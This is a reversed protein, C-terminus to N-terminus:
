AAVKSNRHMTAVAALEEPTIPAVKLAQDTPLKAGKIAPANGTAAPQSGDPANAAIQAPQNAPNAAVDIIKQAMQLQKWANITEQPYGLETWIGQDPAHSAILASVKDTKPLEDDIVAREAIYFDPESDLSFGEFDDYRNYGGIRILMQLARTLGADYNGRAEVIRDIADSYSARVGPATAIGKERLRHLALEPTDREIELLLENIHQSTAGIDINAVMPEPKSGAPGYVAPLQDRDTTSAVLDASKSVGAFYWLVNVHKRIADDLLSVMDNLEDIKRLTSQFPNMGFTLGINRHQVMTVPVFGYENDWEAVYNGAADQYYAFPNGNKFTSFKEPTIVETYLYMNRGPAGGPTNTDKEEVKYYELHIEKVKGVADFTAHKIKRPDVTELRVTQAVRDDVVKLGVDGYLAGQRVYLSKETTWNSSLIARKIADRTRNDNLIFPIAGTALTQMNISGGYVKSVYLEVLRNVPNEIARINKYLEYASKHISSYRSSFSYVNNAYYTDYLEYRFLRSAWLEWGAQQTPVLAQGNWAALAARGSNVLRSFLDPFM